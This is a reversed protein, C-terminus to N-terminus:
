VILEEYHVIECPFHFRKTQRKIIAEEEVAEVSCTNKSTGM